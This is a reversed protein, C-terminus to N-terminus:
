ESPTKCVMSDVAHVAGQLEEWIAKYVLQQRQVPRKGEFLPSTVQISIHSGNPDDYAGTVVVDETELATMIKERCTMVVTTDEEDGTSGSSSMWQRTASTSSPVSFVVASRRPSPIVFGRVSANLILLVISSRLKM